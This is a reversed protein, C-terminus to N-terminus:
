SNSLLYEFIEVKEPTDWETTGVLRGLVMGEPDIIWTTPIGQVQYLASVEGTEDLVVPYTYSNEEIFAEVTDKPENVNVAVMEFSDKPLQGYLLEMSPMEARCPGCWSAWFNLFVVKGQLDSLTFNSGDLGSLSFDPAEFSQMPLQFGIDALKQQAESYEPEESATEGAASEEAAPAAAESQPEEKPEEQVVTENQGKAWLGSLTLISLIISVILIRNKMM